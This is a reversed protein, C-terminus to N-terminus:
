KQTTGVFRYCPSGCDPTAAPDGVEHGIHVWGHEDAEPVPPGQVLSRDEPQQDETTKTDTPTSM